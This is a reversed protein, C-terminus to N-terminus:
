VIIVKKSKRKEKWCYPCGSKKSTRDYIVADWEHQSNVSCKWWVKKNSGKPVLSPKLDGNKTPHWEKSINPFLNKLSNEFLVKKM